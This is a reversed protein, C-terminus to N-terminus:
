INGFAAQLIDFRYNSLLESLADALSEHEARIQEAIDMATGFDATVVARQLGSLMDDPLSAIAEPTLVDEPKPKQSRTAPKRIEEYVYRVGIHKHMLDFIEEEKFPKRLFDDCGASLVVAKEEDFASATLAIVATAQGKTTAKIQETAKYGDKIPMRMDMWILHPNWREWEEIAEQGNAADRLEFGLPSLLKM